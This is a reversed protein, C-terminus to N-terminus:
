RKIEDTGALALKETPQLSGLRLSAVANQIAQMDEKAFAYGDDASFHGTRVYFQAMEKQSLSVSDRLHPIGQQQLVFECLNQRAIELPVSFHPQGWHDDTAIRSKFAGSERILHYLESTTLTTPTGYQQVEQISTDPTELPADAHRDAASFKKYEDRIFRIDAGVQDQIHLRDSPMSQRSWSTDYAKDLTRACTDIGEDGKFIEEALQKRAADITDNHLGVFLTSAAPFRSEISKWFAEFDHEQTM